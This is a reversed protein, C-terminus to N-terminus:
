RCGSVEAAGQGQLTCDPRGALTLSVPGEANVKATGTVTLKVVAPGQVGITADKSTLASGDFSSAGEVRATVTPATGAVVASGNGSIGLKFTDVALRAVDVAGPGAIWLAFSDGRVKDISLSGPGNLVASSLDHTGVSVTVPGNSQGPDNTWGSENPRIKLTGDEVDISISDLAATSGTAKAFPAAGTVLQVKYPGDIRVRSFDEVMFTRVAASAPASAAFGALILLITRM